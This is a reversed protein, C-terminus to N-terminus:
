RTVNKVKKGIVNIKQCRRGIANRKESMGKRHCKKGIVNRKESMKKWHCRKEIVDLEEPTEKQSISLGYCPLKEDL